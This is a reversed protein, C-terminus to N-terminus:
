QSFLEKYELNSIDFKDLLLLKAEAQLPHETYNAVSFLAHKVKDTRPIEGATIARFVGEQLNLGSDNRLTTLTLEEREAQNSFKVLQVFLQDKDNKGSHTILEHLSVLIQERTAEDLQYPQILDLAKKRSEISDASYIAIDKLKELAEGQYIDKEAAGLLQLYEVQLYENSEYGYLNLLIELLEKKFRAPLSTILSFSSEFDTRNSMTSFIYEGLASVEEPRITIEHILQRRALEAQNGNNVVTLYKDYLQIVSYNPKAAAIHSANPATTSLSDNLAQKDSSNCVSEPADPKIGPARIAPESTTIDTARESESNSNGTQYGMYFCLVASVVALVGWKVM